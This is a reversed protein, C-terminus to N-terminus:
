RNGIIWIKAIKSYRFWFAKSGLKTQPIKKGYRFIFGFSRKDKLPYFNFGNHLIEGEKRIHFM